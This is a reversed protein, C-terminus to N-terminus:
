DFCGDRVQVVQLGAAEWRDPSDGPSLFIRIDEDQASSLLAHARSCAHMGCHCILLRSAATGYPPRRVIYLVRLYGPGSIADTLLPNGFLM